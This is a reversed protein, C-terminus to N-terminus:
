AETITFNYSSTIGYCYPTFTMTLTITEGAGLTFTGEWSGKEDYMDSVAIGDVDSSFSGNWDGDVVTMKYTGGEASTFTYVFTNADTGTVTITEGLTVTNGGGQTEDATVTLEFTIDDDPEQAAFVYFDISDGAGLTFSYSETMTEGDVYGIIANWGADNLMVMILEDDESASLTFSGGDASSFTYKIPTNLNEATITITAAQDLTLVNKTEETIIFSYSNTGLTALYNTSASITISEGAGLTFTTTYMKYAGSLTSSGFKLFAYGIEDTLTATYTGGGTSTFMYYETAGYDLAVNVQTGLTVATAVSVSLEITEAAYDNDSLTKGAFTYGDALGELAVSVSKDSMFTLTAEGNEGTTASVEGIKVTIGSLAADGAKVVFKKTFQSYMTVIYDYGEDYEDSSSSWKTYVTAKQSCNEKTVVISYNQAPVFSLTAKGDDSTTASAIESEGNMIKVTAGSIGAGAVDKVTVTSTAETLETVSVSIGTFGDASTVKIIIKEDADVWKDTEATASGTVTVSPRGSVTATYKFYVTGTKADFILSDTVEIAKSRTFGSYDKGAETKYIKFTYSGTGEIASRIQYTTGATLTVIEYEDSILGPEYSSDYIFVYGGATKNNVIVEEDESGVTYTYYVYDSGTGTYEKGLELAIPNNASGKVQGINFAVKGDDASAKFVIYETTVWDKTTLSIKAGSTLDTKVDTDKSYVNKYTDWDFEGVYSYIQTIQTGEAFNLTLAGDFSDLGSIAFYVDGDTADLAIVKGYWTAYDYTYPNAETGEKVDESSVEIMCTYTGASLGETDISAIISASSDKSAIVSASSSAKDDESISLSVKDDLSKVSFAKVSDSKINLTIDDATLIGLDSSEVIFKVYYVGDSTIGNVGIYNKLIVISKDGCESDTCTKYGFGEYAADPAMVVTVDGYAHTHEKVEAAPIAVEETTDDTYTVIFATGDESMAVSKIGKGAEGQAGTEGKEGQDGKDGKEGKEGEEGQAGQSGAANLMQNLWQEYTLDTEAERYMAYLAPDKVDGQDCAVLMATGTAMCSACLITLFKKMTKNM